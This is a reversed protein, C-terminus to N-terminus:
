RVRQRPSSSQPSPLPRLVARNRRLRRDGARVIADLDVVPHAATDARDHMVDSLLGTM